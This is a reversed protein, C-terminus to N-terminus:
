ATKPVCWYLSLLLRLTTLITAYTNQRQLFVVSCNKEKISRLKMGIPGVCLGGGSL